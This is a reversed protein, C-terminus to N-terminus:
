LPKHIDSYKDRVVDIFKSSFIINMEHAWFPKLDKKIGSFKM